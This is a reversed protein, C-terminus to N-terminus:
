RKVEGSKETRHTNIKSQYENKGRTKERFKKGEKEEKDSVCLSGNIGPHFTSSNLLFFLTKRKKKRNLKTTTSPLLLLVSSQCQQKSYRHYLSSECYLFQM